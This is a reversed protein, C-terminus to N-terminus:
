KTVDTERSLWAFSNWTGQARAMSCATAMFPPGSDDHGIFVETQNAIASLHATPNYVLSHNLGSRLAADYVTRALSGHASQQSLTNDGALFLPRQGSDLFDAITDLVSPKRYVVATTRIM